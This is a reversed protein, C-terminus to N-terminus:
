SITLNQFGGEFVVGELCASFDRVCVVAGVFMAVIRPFFCQEFHIYLSTFSTIIISM